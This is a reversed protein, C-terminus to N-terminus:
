ASLLERGAGCPVGSNGSAPCATLAPVRHASSTLQPSLLLAISPAYWILLNSLILIPVQSTCRGALRVGCAVCGRGHTHDDGLFLPISSAGRWYSGALMAGRGVSRNKRSRSSAAGSAM